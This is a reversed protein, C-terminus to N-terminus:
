FYKSRLMAKINGEGITRAFIFQKAAKAFYFDFFHDLFHM